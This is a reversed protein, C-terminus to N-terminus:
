VQDGASGDEASDALYEQYFDNLYNLYDLRCAIGEGTYPNLLGDASYYSMFGYFGFVEELQMELDNEYETDEYEIYYEGYNEKLYRFVEDISQVQMYNQAFLDAAARLEEETVAVTYYEDAYEQESLFEYSQQALFHVDQDQEPLEEYLIGYDNYEAYIDYSFDSDYDYSFDDVLNTVASIVSGIVSIGIVALVFVLLNKKKKAATRYVAFRDGSRRATQFIKGAKAKRKEEKKETEHLSASRSKKQADAASASSSSGSLAAEYAETLERIKKKVYEPDDEYDASRYKALRNEYAAKIEDKGAGNKLGLVALNRDRKMDVENMEDATGERHSVASCCARGAEAKRNKRSLIHGM